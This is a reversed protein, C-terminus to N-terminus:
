SSVELRTAEAQRRDSEARATKALHKLSLQMTTGHQEAVGAECFKVFLKLQGDNLEAVREELNLAGEPDKESQLQAIFQAISPM